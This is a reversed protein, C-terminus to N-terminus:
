SNIDSIEMLNASKLKQLEKQTNYDRILKNFLYLTFLYFLYIHLSCSFDDIILM